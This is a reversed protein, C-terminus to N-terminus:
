GGGVDGTGMEMAARKARKRIDVHLSEDMNLAMYCGRAEMLRKLGRYAEAENWRLRWDRKTMDGLKQSDAIIADYQTKSALEGWWESRLDEDDPALEVAKAFLELAEEDARVVLKARALSRWVGAVEPHEKAYAVLGPVAEQVDMMNGRDQPWYKIVLANQDGPDLELAKAIAAKSEDEKDLLGLCAGLEVQAAASKPAKAAFAEAAVLADDLREMARLANLKGIEAREAVEDGAAAIARDAAELAVDYRREGDHYGVQEVYYDADREESDWREKLYDLLSDARVYTLSTADRPNEYIAALVGLKALADMAARHDPQHELAIVLQEIASESDGLALQVQAVTVHYDPEGDFTDRIRKLTKRAKEHDGQNALASAYNMMAAHDDPCMITIRRLTKLAKEFENEAFLKQAKEWLPQKDIFGELGSVINSQRRRWNADQAVPANELFDKIWIQLKEGTLGDEALGEFKDKPVPVQLPMGQRRAMKEDLPLLMWGQEEESNEAM